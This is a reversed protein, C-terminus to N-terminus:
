AMEMTSTGTMGGGNMVGLHTHTDYITTNVVDTMMIAFMNGFNSLPSNMAVGANVSIGANITGVCIINGNVPVPFGVAVGGLMTVFGDKGASMGGLPSTDVRGDSYINAASLNGRIRSNGDMNVNAAKLHIGGTLLAGSALTTGLQSTSSSYGEVIQTYNGKIHQHLNGNVTETKDGTIQMFVDGFVNIKLKHAKGTEDAPDSGITIECDGVTIYYGKGYIKHVEDGNPSMEIFTNSRHSLRIRERGKTDDLEFMHGSRTKTINNYPYVPQTDENAASEPQIYGEYGDPPKPLETM